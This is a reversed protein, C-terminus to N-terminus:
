PDIWIFDSDAAATPLVRNWEDNTVEELFEFILVKTKSLPENKGGGDM